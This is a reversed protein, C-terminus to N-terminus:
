EPSALCIFARLRYSSPKGCRYSLASETSRKTRSLFAGRDGKRKPRRDAERVALHVALQHAGSAGNCIPRWIEGRSKQAHHPPAPPRLTSNEARQPVLHEGPGCNGESHQPRKAQCSAQGDKIPLSSRAGTQTNRRHVAGSRGKGGQRSIGTKLG